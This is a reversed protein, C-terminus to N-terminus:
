QSPPSAPAGGGNAPPPSAGGAPAGGAPPAAGGNDGGAPPAAAAGNDGGAAPPTAAPAAPQSAPAAAPPTSEAAPAPSSAEQKGCAALLLAAVVASLALKTNMSPYGSLLLLPSHSRSILCVLKDPSEQDGDRIRYLRWPKQFGFSAVTVTPARRCGIAAGAATLPRGAQKSAEGRARSAAAPINCQLM